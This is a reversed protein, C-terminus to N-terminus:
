PVRVGTFVRHYKTKLGESKKAFTYEITITKRDASLYGINKEYPDILCDKYQYNEDSFTETLVFEFAGGGIGALNSCGGEGGPLNRIMQFQNAPQVPVPGRFIEITYKKSPDTNDSGYYKGLVPWFNGLLIVITKEQTDQSNPACEATASNKTTLKVKIPTNESFDSPSFFLTFKKETRIPNDGGLEWQFEDATGLAEFTIYGGQMITDAEIQKIKQIGNESYKMEQYIRFSANASKNECKDRCSTLMSTICLLVGFVFSHIASASRKKFFVSKEM